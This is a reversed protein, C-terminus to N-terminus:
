FDLLSFCDYMVTKCCYIVREYRDCHKPLKKKCEKLCTYGQYNDEACEPPIIEEEYSDCIPSFYVGGGYDQFDEGVDFWSVVPGDQILEFLKDEDSFYKYEYNYM